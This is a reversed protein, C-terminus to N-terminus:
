NRLKQWWKLCSQAKNDQKPFILEIEKGFTKDPYRKELLNLAIKELDFITGIKDILKLELAEAALFIKGDAWISKDEIKLNREKAVSKLGIGSVEELYEKVHKKQEETIPTAYQNLMGTYKGIKIYEVSKKSNIGNEAKSELNTDRLIPYITGMHGIESYSHAILYDAQHAFFYGASGATGLIFAIIPKQKKAAKIIDTIQCLEKAWGGGHDVVLIIVDIEKDKGVEYIEKYVKEHDADQYIQIMQAKPKKAASTSSFFSKFAQINQMHATLLISCLLLKKM